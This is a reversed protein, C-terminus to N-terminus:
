QSPQGLAALQGAEQLITLVAGTLDTEPTAERLSDGLHERLTFALESLQADTLGFDSAQKTM